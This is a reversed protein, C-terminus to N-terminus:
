RGSIAVAIAIEPGVVEGAMKRKAREIAAAVQDDTSRTADYTCARNAGFEWHDLDYCLDRASTSIRHLLMRQDRRVALNLDGHSIVRQTQPDLRKGEVVVDRAPPRANAAVATLGLGIVVAACLSATNRGNMKGEM